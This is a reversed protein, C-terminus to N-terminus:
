QLEKLIGIVQRRGPQVEQVIVEDFGQDEYWDIMYDVALGEKNTLSPQRILDCALDVIEDKKLHDLVNL